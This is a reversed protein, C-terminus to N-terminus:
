KLYQYHISNASRNESRPRQGFACIARRATSAL